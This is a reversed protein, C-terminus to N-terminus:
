GQRRGAADADELDDDELADDEQAAGRSAAEDSEVRDLAEFIALVDSEAQM